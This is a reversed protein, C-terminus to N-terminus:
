VIARGELTEQDEVGETTPSTGAKTGQEQFTKRGIVSLLRLEFEGDVRRRTDRRGHDFWVVSNQGGVAGDLVGVAREQDVVFSDIVNAAAVKINRTGAILVQITQDGLHDARNGGTEAEVTGQVHIQVFELSVQDWIRTNM